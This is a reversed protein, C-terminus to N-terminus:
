SSDRTTDHLSHRRLWKKNKGPGFDLPQDGQAVGNGRHFFGEAIQGATFGHKERHDAFADIWVPSEEAHLGAVHSRATAEAVLPAAEPRRIAGPPHGSMLGYNQEVVGLGACRFSRNV